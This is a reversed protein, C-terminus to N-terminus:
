VIRRCETSIADIFSNITYNLAVQANNEKIFNITTMDEIINSIVEKLQNKNGPEVLFGNNNCLIESIAGVNTSVVACGASYAELIVIPLGEGYSPLLLVDSDMFIRKKKSGNIYGLYNVKSNMMTQYEKFSKEINKNSFGGCVNFIFDKDNLSAFCELADLIGKREDLSGVFLFRTKGTYKFKNELEIKNVSFTSFNYITTCKDASIGNEIFSNMTKNSLFVIDDVYNQLLSIMFKDIVEIGTFIKEYDAFHIHVITKLKKNRKKSQKISLLDKLLALGISTHFYLIDIDNNRIKKSITMYILAFNRINDIGFKGITDSDRKIRCTEYEILEIGNKKFKEKNQALQNVITSIGGVYRGNSDYPGAMLVKLKNDRM